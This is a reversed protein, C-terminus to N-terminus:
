SKSDEAEPETDGDEASPEEAPADEPESSQEEAPADEPAGAAPEDVPEDETTTDEASAEAAPEEPAAEPEEGAAEESAEAPAEEASTEATEESTEADSADEAADVVDQEAELAAGEELEEGTEVSEEEIEEEAVPAVGMAATLEEFRARSGAKIRAAKGVRDRLYYLKARRVRGVRIVDVKDILPSYYPFIREVGIGHSIRRVTFNSNAGGRRIRIVVGEFAQIRERDGEIVRAHVRVTDGSRFAPIKPNPKLDLYSDVNM